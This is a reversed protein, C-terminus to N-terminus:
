VNIAQIYTDVENNDLFNCSLINDKTRKLYQPKNEFELINLQICEM